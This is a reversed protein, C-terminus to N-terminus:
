LEVDTIILRFADPLNSNDLELIVFYQAMDATGIEPLFRTININGDADVSEIRHGISGSGEVLVFSVIASNEFFSAPRRMIESYFPTQVGGSWSGSFAWRDDLFTNFDNYTLFVEPNTARYNGGSVRRVLPVFDFYLDVQADHLKDYDEDQLNEDYDCASLALMLAIIIALLIKCM